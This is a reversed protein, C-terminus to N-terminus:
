YVSSVDLEPKIVISKALRPAWFDWTENIITPNESFIKKSYLIESYKM